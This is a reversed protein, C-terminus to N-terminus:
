RRRATRSGAGEVLTALRRRMLRGEQGAEGVLDMSREPLCPPTYQEGGSFHPTRAGGRRSHKGFLGWGSVGRRQCCRWTTISRRVAGQTNGQREGKSGYQEEARLTLPEDLRRRM